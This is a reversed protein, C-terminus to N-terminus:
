DDWEEDDFDDELDEDDEACDDCLLDDYDSDTWEGCRKCFPM